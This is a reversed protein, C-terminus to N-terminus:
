WKTRSLTEGKEVVHWQTADWADSVPGERKKEGAMDSARRVRSSVFIQEVLKEKENRPAIIHRRM